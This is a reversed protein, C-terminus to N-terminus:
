QKKLTMHLECNKMQAQSWIQIISMEYNHSSNLFLSRFLLKRNM